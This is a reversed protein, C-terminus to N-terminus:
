AGMEKYATPTDLTAQFMARVKASSEAQASMLEEMIEQHKEMDKSITADIKAREVKYDIIADIEEDTMDQYTESKLLANLDIDAM